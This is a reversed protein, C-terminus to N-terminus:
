EEGSAEGPIIDEETEVIEPTETVRSQYLRNFFLVSILLGAIGLIYLWHDGFNTPVEDAKDYGMTYVLTVAIANNVFHILAPLWISGSWILLYGFMAGLALRPLFGYMQFHILSFIVAVMWISAHRNWKESFIRYLAGRFYIEEAIAPTVAIVLINFLYGWITEVELFRRMTAEVSDELSRLVGELGAMWEPLVMQQNLHSLAYIFPMIAFYGLLAYGIHKKSPLRTTKYAQKWKKGFWMYGLIVPPLVFSALSVFLQILKEVNVGPTHESGSFSSILSPISILLSTLFTIVLTLFILQIFKLFLGPGKKM